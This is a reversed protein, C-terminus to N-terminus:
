EKILKKGESLGEWYLRDRELWFRETGGVLESLKKAIPPTIISKGELLNNAESIDLHMHYAFYGTDISKEDLLDKVSEGPPSVWDPDFENVM